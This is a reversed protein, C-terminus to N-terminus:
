CPHPSCELQCSIFPDYVSLGVVILLNWLAHKRHATLLDVFSFLWALLRSVLINFSLMVKGGTSVCSRAPQFARAHLGESRPVLCILLVGVHRCITVHTLIYVTGFACICLHLFSSYDSLIIMCSVPSLMFGALVTYQEITMKATVRCVRKAPKV